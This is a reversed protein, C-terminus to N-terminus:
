SSSSFRAKWWIRLFNLGEWFLIRLNVTSFAVGEKLHIPISEMLIKKDRDALYIFELDCLYRDITTELFIKRGRANFGKLGCQTDTISIQLLNRALFRLTKSVCVRFPSLHQYYAEDKIGVSVDVERKALRYYIAVLSELTYPFDIDTFMCIENQSAEVGRRLTYGKGKNEPNEIYQLSPYLSKLRDIHKPSIGKKSGDNVLIVHLQVGPLKEALNQLSDLVVQDWGELPNFCPLVLDLHQNNM